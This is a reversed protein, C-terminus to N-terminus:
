REEIQAALAQPEMGRRLAEKVVELELKRYHRELKPVVRASIRKRNQGWKRLWTLHKASLIVLPREPSRWLVYRRSAIPGFGPLRQLADPWCHELDGDFTAAVKLLAAAWESGKEFGCKQLVATLEAAPISEVREFPLMGGEHFLMAMAEGVRRWQRAPVVRGLAMHLLKLQLGRLRELEAAAM